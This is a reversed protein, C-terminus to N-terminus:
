FLETLAVYIAGIAVAYSAAIGGLLVIVVRWDTGQREASGGVEVPAAVADLGDAFFPVPTHEAHESM